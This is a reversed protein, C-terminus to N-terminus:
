VVAARAKEGRGPTAALHHVCREGILGLVGALLLFAGAFFVCKVNSTLGYHSIDGYKRITEVVIVVAGVPLSFYTLARWMGARSGEAQGAVAGLIRSLALFGIGAAILFSGIVGARVPTQGTQKTAYFAIAAWVMFGIGITSVACGITRWTQRERLTNM